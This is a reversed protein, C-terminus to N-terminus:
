GKGLSKHCGQVAGSANRSQSELRSGKKKEGSVWEAKPSTDSPKGHWEVLLGGLGSLQISTALSAPARTCGLASRCDHQAVHALEQEPGMEHRVDGGLRYM